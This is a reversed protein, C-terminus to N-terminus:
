RKLKDILAEVHSHPRQNACGTVGCAGRARRIREAPRLPIPAAPAPERPPPPTERPARYNLAYVGVFFLAAALLGVFM